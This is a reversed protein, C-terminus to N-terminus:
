TVGRPPYREPFFLFRQIFQKRIQELENNNEKSCIQLLIQPEIPHIDLQKKEHLYSHMLSVLIDLSMCYAFILLAGTFNSSLIWLISSCCVWLSWPLNVLLLVSAFNSNATEWPTAAQGQQRNSPLARKFSSETKNSKSFMVLRVKRWLKVYNQTWLWTLKIIALTIFIFFM